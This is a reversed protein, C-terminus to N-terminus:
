YDFILKWEFQIFRLFIAVANLKMKGFKEEGRINKWAATM